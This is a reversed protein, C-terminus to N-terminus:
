DLPVKIADGLKVSKLTEPENILEGTLFEGDFDVNVIWMQEINLDTEKHKEGINQDSYLVKVCALDLAPVVRKLDWTYERWFYKFTKRANEMAHVMIRSTFAPYM